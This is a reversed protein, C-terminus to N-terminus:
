CIDVFSIREGYNYLSSPESLLVCDKMSLHAVGTCLDLGNFTKSKDHFMSKTCLICFLRIRNIISWIWDLLDFMSLAANRNYHHPTSHHRPSLTREENLHYNTSLMTCTHTSYLNMWEVCVYMKNLHKMPPQLSVDVVFCRMEICMFIRTFVCVCMGVCKCMKVSILVCVRVCQVRNLRTKTTTQM